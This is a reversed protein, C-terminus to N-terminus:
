KMVSINDDTVVQRILNNLYRCRSKVNDAIDNFDDYTVVKISQCTRRGIVSSWDDSFVLIRTTKLVKNLVHMKSM